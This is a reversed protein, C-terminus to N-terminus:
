GEAHGSACADCAQWWDRTHWRLWAARRGAADLAYRVHTEGVRWGGEDPCVIIASFRGTDYAKKWTGRHADDLGHTVLWTHVAVLGEPLESDMGAGEPSRLPAHSRKIAPLPIPASMGPMQSRAEAIQDILSQKVMRLRFDYPHREVQGELGLRKCWRMFSHWSMHLARCAQATTLLREDENM